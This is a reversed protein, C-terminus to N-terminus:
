RRTAGPVPLAAARATDGAFAWAFDDEFAAYIKGSGHPSLHDDDVYLIGDDDFPRCFAKDCFVDIPDIFRVNPFQGALYRLTAISASRRNDVQNRRVACRDPSIRRAAARAVCDPAVFRLEPVPGILLIREVGLAELRAIMAGVGLAMIKRVGDPPPRSLGAEAFDGPSTSGARRELAMGTNWRASVVAYDPPRPLDRGIAAIGDALRANCAESLDARRIADVPYYPQCGPSVLSVLTTGSGQANSRVVDYIMRAHSNGILLGIPGGAARTLCDAELRNAGTLACADDVDAMGAWLEPAAREIGPAVVDSYVLGVLAVAFAAGAGSVVTPWRLGLAGRRRRWRKIPVELFHHTAAALALSLAIASWDWAPISEGFNRIRAFTLLPWHWLYWAYSVLGIWVMPRTALLRAVPTEPRALGAAIVLCAGIVPVAAWYSPYPVGHGIGLVTALILGMGAAGVVVVAPKPMARLAPVLSPILGGLIFEWARYPTLYFAPNTGGTGTVCVAFSAIVLGAVAVGAIRRHHAATGGALRWLGFLILPAFLYFQEEVALSWLHLLPKTEAAVDFYGQKAYFYHNVIMFASNMAERGLEIFERPAVFVFPAIALSAAIVLLYPPLIRLVRRAWFGAFSFSGSKLGAVIQNIILYGSIVFFVDVGVFGGRISPTGAHYAVVALISVARLGDVFPKYGFIDDTPRNDAM